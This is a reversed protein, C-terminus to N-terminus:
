TNAGNDQPADTPYRRHCRCQECVAGLTDYTCCDAIAGLQKVADRLTRTIIAENELAANLREIESSRKELEDAAELARAQIQMLTLPDAWLEKPMRLVGCLMVDSM